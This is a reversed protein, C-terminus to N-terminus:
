LATGKRPEALVPGVSDVSSALSALGFFLKLKTSNEASIQFGQLLEPTAKAPPRLGNSGPLM